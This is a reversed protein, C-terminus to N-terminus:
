PPSCSSYAGVALIPQHISEGGTGEKQLALGEPLTYVEQLLPMKLHTFEQQRVLWMLHDPSEFCNVQFQLRLNEEELAKVDKVLKPLQLSLYNIKNQKQIMHYLYLTFVTLCCLIQLLVRFNM